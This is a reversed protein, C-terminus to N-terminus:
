FGSGIFGDGFSDGRMRVFEDSYYPTEPFLEYGGQDGEVPMYITHPAGSRDTMTLEKCEHQYFPAAWILNENETLYDTNIKVPVYLLTFVGLLVAMQGVRKTDSLVTGAMVSLAILITALGYRMLPASLLWYLMGCVAVAMIFIERFGKKGRICRVSYILAGAGFFLCLLLMIRPVQDIRSFWAQFWGALPLGISDELTGDFLRGFMVIEARDWYAVERPVKWDLDFLDLSEMPYLLYGTTIVNRIFYPIVTILSFCSFFAIERVKKEKILWILVAVALLSITAVSLKVTIDFIGLLALLGYPVPASEGADHLDCWLSFIYILLMMPVIDTGLSSMSDISYVFYFLASLHLLVSRRFCRSSVAARLAFVSRSIIIFSVFGNVIHIPHGTFSMSMLAHLPMLASNYGFRKHFNALGPVVRYTEMWRVAQAHYLYTDWDHAEAASIVVFVSLLLVLTLRMGGPSILPRILDATERRLVFLIVAGAAFLFIFASLDVAHLLHWFGAFVATFAIGSIIVASSSRVSYGTLRRCLHRFLVGLALTTFAMYLYGFLTAIM